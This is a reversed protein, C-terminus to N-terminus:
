SARLRWAVWGAAAVAHLVVTGWYGWRFSAKSSKHRLAQQAWWAAPWGGALSWLHLTRESVRWHGAVAARKDWWYTAFTLLNVAALVWVVSRPVVGTGVAWALASAYLVMLAVALGSGGKERTVPAGRALARPRSPAPRAARRHAKMAPM